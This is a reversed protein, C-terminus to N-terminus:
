AEKFDPNFLNPDFGADVAVAEQPAPADVAVPEPEPEAPKAAPAADLQKPAEATEPQPIAVTPAPAQRPQEQEDVTDEEPTYMGGLNIPYAERFAQAIAVKRIMTAPKAAWTSKGSHYEKLSVRAVIPFSRDSRHVEAWGGLLMDQPLCFSGEVEEVKNNRMVIVGARFGDYNLGTEARKMFASKSTIMQAPSDKNYKVLYADGVFPNLGNARCLSMFQVIEADTFANADGRCLYQRVITRSLTVEEDGVNYTIQKLNEGPAPTNNQQEM